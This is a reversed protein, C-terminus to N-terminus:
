DHVAGVVGPVYRRSRAVVLKMGGKRDPEGGAKLPESRVVVLSARCLADDFDGEYVPAPAMGVAAAAPGFWDGFISRETLLTEVFLVRGSERDVLLDALFSGIAEKQALGSSAFARVCLIHDFLRGDPPRLEGLTSHVVTMVDRARASVVAASAVSALDTDAEQAVVRIGRARLVSLAGLVAECAGAGVLLVYSGESVEDTDLLVLLGARTRGNDAASAISARASAAWSAMRRHPSAAEPHTCAMDPHLTTATPPQDTKLDM